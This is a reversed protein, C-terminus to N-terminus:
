IRNNSKKFIAYDLFSPFSKNVVEFGSIKTRGESILGAIALTMVMRHDNHSSCAAGQLKTPGKIIMGSATERIDAGLKALETVIAKIRDTEKVRLEGAGKIVTIGKAQTAILALIPIEDILFPIIGEPINVGKLQSYKVTIDGIPEPNTIQSKHNTIQSVRAGMKKLIKLLGIRYPNLGVNKIVVESGPILLGAAIFYAASSFDGPIETNLRNLSSNNCSAMRLEGNAIKDVSAGMVRLLRETHDRTPIKERVVTEGDAYLGALLIASKVQASAVPMVYKIGKLESPYIRLPLRGGESKIKAGMKILPEIVRKMPRNLLTKKGTIVSPFRQGALLGTLLRAATGSEGVNLPKSSKKLGYLGRGKITVVATMMGRKDNQTRRERDNQPLVNMKNLTFEAVSSDREPYVGRLIESVEVEVGLQRICRIVSLCDDSLPVNRLISKGEAISALIIARQAISKDGPPYVGVGIGNTHPYITGKVPKNRHNINLIM